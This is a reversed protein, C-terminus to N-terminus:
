LRWQQIMVGWGDPDHRDARLARHHPSRVLKLAGKQCQRLSKKKRRKKTSTQLNREATEPPLKYALLLGM